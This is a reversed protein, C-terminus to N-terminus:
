RCKGAMDMGVTVAGKIHATSHIGPTKLRFFFDLNAEFRLSKKLKWKSFFYFCFNVCFFNQGIAKMQVTVQPNGKCAEM